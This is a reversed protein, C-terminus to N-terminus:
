PLERLTQTVDIEGAQKLNDATLVQVPSELETTSDVAIRSGTVVIRKEEEPAAEDTTITEQALAPAAMLALGSASLLAASMLRRRLNSTNTYNM